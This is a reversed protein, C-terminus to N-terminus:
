SNRRSTALYGVPWSRSATDLATRSPQPHRRARPRREMDCSNGRASAATDLRTVTVIHGWGGCGRLRPWEPILPHHHWYHPQLEYKTIVTSIWVHGAEVRAVIVWWAQWPYRPYWSCSVKISKLNLSCIFGPGFGWAQAQIMSVTSLQLSMKYFMSLESFPRACCALGQTISHM